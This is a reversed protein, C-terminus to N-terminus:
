NNIAKKLVTLNNKMISLYTLGAAIDTADVSQMSDLILIQRNKDKSERIITEAVKKNSSETVLINTLGLEDVKGTLFIVTEFSAETEASCGPFAAYYDLKYDDALYRFPFRDGFLLTKVPAANVAALYEADLASLKELYAELNARYIEANDPNLSSLADAIATCFIQANKLSLWVHEDYEDREDRGNVDEGEEDEEEMGEIIEEAKAAEGLRDLLNIVLMNKNVAERLADEAWNDSLGGVYIFLDCGSIKVIDDVSPQFSHLDMGSNLLLTLDIDEAGDGLIQRVWDYPPFITCVVRCVPPRNEQTITRLVLSGDGQTCGAAMLSLLLLFLLLAARLRIDYTSGFGTFKRM